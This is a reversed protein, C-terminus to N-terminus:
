SILKEFSMGIEEAYRKKIAYEGKKTISLSTLYFFYWNTSFKVALIPEANFNQSFNILQEIQDKRFYQYDTKTAKAEVAFTKRGNSALVDPCPFRSSGSGAVRIAAYDKEWFMAVLQREANSGKAKM